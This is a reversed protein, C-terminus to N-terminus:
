RQSLTFDYTAVTLDPAGARMGSVAAILHHPVEPGFRIIAPVVRFEGALQAPATINAIVVARDSKILVRYMKYDSDPDITFQLKVSGSGPRVAFTQQETEGRFTRPPRVVALLPEALHGVAPEPSGVIKRAGLDRRLRAITDRQEQDRRQLDAENRAAIRRTGELQFLLYTTLGGMILVLAAALALYAPFQRKAGSNISVPRPLSSSQPKGLIEPLAKQWAVRERLDPRLVCQAEFAVSEGAPLHGAAYEEVLLQEEAILQEYYRADVVSREDARDQDAEALRGLLHDRPSYAAPNESSGEM